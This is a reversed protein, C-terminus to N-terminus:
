TLAAEALPVDLTVLTGGRPPRSVELKGHVLEARERMAVLGLGAGNQAQPAALGVGDDEVEVRLHDPTFRVRVSAGSSQAHRAVNNLAEQLIRYVHIAVQDSVAVTEGQTQYQIQLGTQKEFRQVMWEVARELGYDDLITPHLTQSLTRVSDLASQAVQRVEELETRFPSDPALGRKEARTLMAGVATLIQGFEDHLERSVARLVEEQVSILKRALVRTQQTLAALRQFLRRNAHIVYLSTASIAVLMAAVFYYIDRAVQDYIGQIEAVAREETENNLVLLRAV